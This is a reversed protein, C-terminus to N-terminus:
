DEKEDNWVQRERPIGLEEELYMELNEAPEGALEVSLVPLGDSGTDVLVEASVELGLAGAKDSIYAVVEQEIITEWEACASQELEIRRMKVQEKYSETQMVMQETDIDLVPQLLVIMLVLGGVFFGTKQIPGNPIMAHVVALFMSVVVISTMWERVAEMM